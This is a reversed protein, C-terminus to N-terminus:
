ESMIKEPLLDHFPKAICSHSAELAKYGPSASTSVRDWAVESSPSCIHALGPPFRHLGDIDTQLTSFVYTLRCVKREEPYRVACLQLTPQTMINKNTQPRRYEVRTKIERYDLISKFKRNELRWGPIASRCRLSPVFGCSWVHKALTRGFEAVVRVGLATNILFM